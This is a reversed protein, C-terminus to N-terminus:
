KILESEVLTWIGMFTSTFAEPGRDILSNLQEPSLWKGDDIESQQLTLNEDSTAIYIQVFEFGNDATPPLRDVPILADGNIHVGLEEYVERVACNLYSEGSDVHGAASTDWLGPNTDKSLSRLQLFVDGKSNCLVIHASRHRHNLRHIEDRTARGIVVDQEDVIDLWEISPM